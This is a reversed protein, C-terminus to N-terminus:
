KDGAEIKLVGRRALGQAAEQGKNIYEEQLEWLVGEVRPHMREKKERLMREEPSEEPPTTRRDTSPLDISDEDMDEIDTDMEEDLGQAHTTNGLILLSIFSLTLLWILYYYKNEISRYMADEKKM